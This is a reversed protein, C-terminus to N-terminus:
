DINRQLLLIKLFCNPFIQKGSSICGFHKQFTKKFHINGSKGKLVVIESNCNYSVDRLVAECANNIHYLNM